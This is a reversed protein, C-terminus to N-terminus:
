QYTYLQKSIILNQIYKGVQRSEPSCVTPQIVMQSFLWRVLYGDSQIIMQSFLWSISFGDSQIVM